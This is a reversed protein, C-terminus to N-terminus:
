HKADAECGVLRVELKHKSHLNGGEDLEPEDDPEVQDGASDGKKANKFDDLQKKLMATEKAYIAATGATVNGAWLQSAILSQNAWAQPSSAQTKWELLSARAQALALTGFNSM